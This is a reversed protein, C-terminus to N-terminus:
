NENYIDSEEEIKGCMLDCLEKQEETTFLIYDRSACKIEQEKSCIQCYACAYCRLNERLM